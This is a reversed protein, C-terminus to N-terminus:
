SWGGVPQYHSTPQQVGPQQALYDHPRAAAINQRSTASPQYQEAPATNVVTAYEGVLAAIALRAARVADEAENIQDSDINGIEPASSITNEVTALWSVVPSWEQLAQNAHQTNM